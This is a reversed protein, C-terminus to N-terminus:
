DAKPILGLKPTMPLLFMFGDDHQILTGKAQSYGLPSGVQGGVNANQMATSIWPAAIHITFRSSIRLEDIRMGKCPSTRNARFDCSSGLIPTTIAPMPLRFATNM